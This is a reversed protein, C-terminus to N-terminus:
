EYHVAMIPPQDSVVLYFRGDKRGLTYFTGTIEAGLRDRGTVSWVTFFHTPKLNPNEPPYIAQAWSFRGIDIRRIPHGFEQRLVSHMAEGAKPKAHEWWVLQEIRRLDKSTNARRFAAEFGQLTSTDQAAVIRPLLLSLSLLPAAFVRPM